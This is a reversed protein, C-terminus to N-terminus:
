YLSNLLCLCYVSKVNISDFKLPSSAHRWNAGVVGHLAMETRAECAERANAPVRSRIGSGSIGSGLQAQQQAHQTQQQAHEPHTAGNMSSAPARANMPTNVINGFGPEFFPVGAACLTVM